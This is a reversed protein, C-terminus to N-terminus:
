KPILQEKLILFPREIIHYTITSLLITVPFVLIFYEYRLDRSLWIVFPHIVYFSYSIKGLFQLPSTELLKKIINSHHLFHQFIFSFGISFIPLLLSRHQLKLAVAMFFVAILAYGIWMGYKHKFYGNYILIGNLIGFFCLPPLMRGCTVWERIQYNITFFEAVFLIILGYFLYLLVKKSKILLLVPSILYFQEEIALTWFHFTISPFGHNLLYAFNSTFTLPFLYDKVNFNFYLICFTLYAFYLPFIRLIRRLYFRVLNGNIIAAILFGSIIFFVEVGVNGLWLGGVFRGIAFKSLNWHDLFVLIVAIGRLGDIFRIRPM